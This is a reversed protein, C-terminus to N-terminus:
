SIKFLTIYQGVLDYGCILQYYTFEIIVMLILILVTMKLIPMSQDVINKTYISLFFIIKKIKICIYNIEKNDSCKDQILRHNINEKEEKSPSIFSFLWGVLGGLVLMKITEYIKHREEEQLRLKESEQYKIFDDRQKLFSKTLVAVERREDNIREEIKQMQSLSTNLMSLLPPLNQSFGMNIGQQINNNINNQMTQLYNSLHKIQDEISSDLPLEQYTEIPIQPCYDRLGYTDMCYDVSCYNSTQSNDHAINTSNRDHCGRAFAVIIFIWVIVGIFGWFDDDM